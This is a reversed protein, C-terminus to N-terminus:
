HVGIACGAEQGPVRQRGSVVALQLMRAGGMTMAAPIKAGNSKLATIM